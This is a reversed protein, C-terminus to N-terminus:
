ADSPAERPHVVLEGPDVSLVAAVQGAAQAGDEASVRFYSIVVDLM